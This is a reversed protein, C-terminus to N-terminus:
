SSYVHRARLMTAEDLRPTTAPRLADFVMSPMPFAAQLLALGDDIRFHRRKAAFQAYHPLWRASVGFLVRRVQHEIEDLLSLAAESQLGPLLMPEVESGATERLHQRLDFGVHCLLLHDQWNGVVSILERCGRHLRRRVTPLLEDVPDPTRPHPRQVPVRRAAVSLTGSTEAPLAAVAALLRHRWRWATEVHLNLARAIERASPREGRALSTAIAFIKWLPLKAGHLLCDATVNHTRRCTSCGFTRPRKTLRWLHGGCSGPCCLNGKGDGWRAEALIGALRGEDRAQGEEPVIVM